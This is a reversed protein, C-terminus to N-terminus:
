ISSIEEIQPIGEIQNKKKNRKNIIAGTGAIGVGAAGATIARAKTTAKKADAFAQAATNSKAQQQGFQEILGPLEEKVKQARGIGRDISSLDKLKSEVKNLRRQNVKVKKVGAADPGFLEKVNQRTHLQSSLVDRERALRKVGQEGGLRSLAKGQKRQLAQLQADAAQGITGPNVKSIDVRPAIDKIRRATMQLAEDASRYSNKATAKTVGVLDDIYKFAKGTIKIAIKEIEDNANFEAVKSGKQAKREDYREQLGKTGHYIAAGSPVAVYAIGRRRNLRREFESAVTKKDKTESFIKKAEEIQEKLIKQTKQATRESQEFQKLIKHDPHGQPIKRNPYANRLMQARSYADQEFRINKALERQKTEIHKKIVHIDRKLNDMDNAVGEYRLNPKVQQAFDHITENASRRLNEVVKKTDNSFLDKRLGKLYSANLIEDQLEQITKTTKPGFKDKMSVFFKSIGKLKM